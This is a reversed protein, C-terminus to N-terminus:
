PPTSVRVRGVWWHMATPITRVGNIYEGNHTGEFYLNTVANPNDLTTFDFSRVGDFWVRVLGDANGPTSRRFHVEVKHWADYPVAVPPQGPLENSPSPGYGSLYLAWPRRPVDQPLDRFALFARTPGSIVFFLKNGGPNDSARYDAPFKLWFGVFVEGATIPFYTRGAGSGAVTGAVYTAQLVNPGGVPPGAGYGGDVVSQFAGTVPNAGEWRWGGGEHTPWDWTARAVFGVPENTFAFVDVSADPVTVGGDASSADASGADDGAVSADPVSGADPTVPSACGQAWAALVVFLPRLRVGRAYRRPRSCLGAKPVDSCSVDARTPSARCSSSAFRSAPGVCRPAGDRVRRGM